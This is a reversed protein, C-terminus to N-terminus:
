RRNRLDVKGELQYDTLTRVRRFLSLLIKLTLWPNGTRRHMEQLDSLGLVRAMQDACKEVFALEKASLDLEKSRIELRMLKRDSLARHIEQYTQNAERINALVAKVVRQAALAVPVAIWALEIWGPSAYSVSALRPRHEPPTAFRLRDYFNVASYGGKWPYAGYTHEIRKLADDGHESILSYILFYVQEFTRPFVYLDQLTWDGEIHITYSGPPRPTHRRPM